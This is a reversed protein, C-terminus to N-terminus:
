RSPMLLAELISNKCCANAVDHFAQVPLLSLSASVLAFSARLFTKAIGAVMSPFASVALSCFQRRSAPGCHWPPWPEKAPPDTKSCLQDRVFRHTSATSHRHAFGLPPSHRKKTDLCVDDLAVFQARKPSLRKRLRFAHIGDNRCGASSCDWDNTRPFVDPSCRLCPPLFAGHM